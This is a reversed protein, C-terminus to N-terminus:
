ARLRAIDNLIFAGYMRPPRMQVPTGSSRTSALQGARFLERAYQQYVNPDNPMRWDLLVLLQEEIRALELASIGTLLDEMVDYCEKTTLQIDLTFKVAVVCAGLFINRATHVCLVNWHKRVLKEVVVVAIALDKSAMGLRMAVSWVFELVDHLRPLTPSGGDWLISKLPSSSDSLPVCREDFLTPIWSPDIDPGHRLVPDTHNYYDEAAREAIEPQLLAVLAASVGCCMICVTGDSDRARAASDSIKATQTRPHHPAIGPAPLPWSLPADPPADM